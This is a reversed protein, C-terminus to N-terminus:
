RVAETRLRGCTDVAVFTLLRTLEVMARVDVANMGMEFDVDFPTDTVKPMGIRATPIGRNRLINADTAGSTGVTLQHTSGTVREWARVASGVVFASEATASGPISLIMRSRLRLGPRSDEIAALERELECRADAPSTRPSIRLDVRLRCVAPTFSPMRQWGGEISGVVGQPRVLGGDHRDAWKEFWAELRSAVFGADEIASRYPLRHRSGVYTHTGDVEIEFWCLGVEEHAVSWGPKAIVAFDPWVGQELMFSCGVGQGTNCRGGLSGPRANTPMGGAGFGAFLDGRLPIEARRVAALAGLVCAGHGKPNGAGLGTVFHGDVNASPLMDPRSPGAWPEDEPGNGALVTDIPAYLLLSPGGDSGPLLGIANAQRDDIPQVRSEIGASDMRAALHAALTGEEGTPSAIDVMEVVLQRLEDADIESWVAEVHRRLEDEHGSRESMVAIESRPAGSHQVFRAREHGATSSWAVVSKVSSPGSCACWDPISQDVSFSWAPWAWVSPRGDM